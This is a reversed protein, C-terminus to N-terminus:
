HALLVLPLRLVWTNKKREFVINLISKKGCLHRQSVHMDSLSKESGLHAAHVASLGALAAGTAALGVNPAAGADVEAGAVAVDVDARAFGAAVVVVVVATV